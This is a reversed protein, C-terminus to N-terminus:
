AVAIRSSCLAGSPPFTQRSWLLGQKLYRRKRVRRYGLSRLCKAVRKQDVITCTSKHREFCETLVLNISVSCNIQTSLWREIMSVWPDEEFWAAQEAKAEVQLADLSVGDEKRRSEMRQGARIM